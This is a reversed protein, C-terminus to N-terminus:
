KRMNSRVYDGLWLGGIAIGLLVVIEWWETEM